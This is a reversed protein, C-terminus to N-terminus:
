ASRIWLIQVLLYSLLLLLFHFQTGLKWHSLEAGRGEDRSELAKIESNMRALQSETELKEKNLKQNIQEVNERQQKKM